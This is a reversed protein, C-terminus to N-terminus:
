GDDPPEDPDTTTTTSDGTTTTTGPVPPVVDDDVNAQTVFPLEFVTLPDVGTFDFDDFQQRDITLRVVLDTGTGDPDPISARLRLV